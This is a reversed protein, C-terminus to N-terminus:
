APHAIPPSAPPCRSSSATGIAIKERAAGWGSYGIVRDGAAFGTVDPGISEITGAFEAGPSFPFEPKFQYQGAIILLDFFNLAAAEIRVVAQGPGAVPDPLDAISLDDPTGAHTCLLAKM